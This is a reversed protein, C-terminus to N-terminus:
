MALLYSTLCSLAVVYIVTRQSDQHTASSPPFESQPVRSGKSIDETALCAIEAAGSESEGPLRATILIPVPQRVLLDYSDLFDEEAVPLFEGLYWIYHTQYNSPVDVGPLSSLTCDQQSLNFPKSTWRRMVRGCAEEIDVRPCKGGRPRPAGRLAKQCEDSLIGNCSADNDDSEGSDSTANLADMEYYCLEMEKGSPTEPFSEPVSLFLTRDGQSSVDKVTSTNRAQHFQFTMSLQWDDQELLSFTTTGTANFEANDDNLDEIIRPCQTDSSSSNNQSLVPFGFYVSSAALLHSTFKM